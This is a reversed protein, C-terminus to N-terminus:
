QPPQEEPWLEYDFAIERDALQDGEVHQGPPHAGRHKAERLNPLIKV